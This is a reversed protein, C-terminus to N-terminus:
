QPRSGRGRSAGGMPKPAPSGRGGTGRGGGRGRTGGSSRVGLGTASGPSPARTGGGRGVNGGQTQPPRVGGRNPSQQRRQGSPSGPRSGDMAVRKRSTDHTMTRARGEIQERWYRDANNRFAEQITTNDEELLLNKLLQTSEMATADRRNNYTDVVKAWDSLAPVCRRLIGAALESAKRSDTIHKCLKALAPTGRMREFLGFDADAFSAINSTSRFSECFDPDSVSAAASAVELFPPPPANDPGARIGWKRFKAVVTHYTDRVNDFKFPAEEPPRPVVGQAAGDADLRLMARARLQRQKVADDAAAAAGSVPAAAEEDGDDDGSADAAEAAEAQMRALEADWDRTAAAAAEARAAARGDAVAAAEDAAARQALPGDGNPGMALAM